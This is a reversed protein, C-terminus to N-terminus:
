GVGSRRKDVSLKGILNDVLEIMQRTKIAIETSGLEMDRLQCLNTKLAGLESRVGWSSVEGLPRGLTVARVFASESVGVSEARERIQAHECSTCSVRGWQVRQGEGREVVAAGKWIGSPIARLEHEVAGLTETVEDHPIKGSVPRGYSLVQDGSKRAIHLDRVKTNLRVGVRWFRADIGQNLAPPLEYTLLLNRVYGVITKGAAKAANQVAAYETVTMRMWPGHPRKLGSTKLSKEKDSM